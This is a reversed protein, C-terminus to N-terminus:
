TNSEPLRQLDWMMSCNEDAKEQTPICSFKCGHIQMASFVAGGLGGQFCSGRKASNSNSEQVFLIPEPWSRKSLIQAHCCPFCLFSQSTRWHKATKLVWGLFLSTIRQITRLPGWTTWQLALMTLSQFWSLLCSTRFTSTRICLQFEKTWAVLGVSLMSQMSAVLGCGHELGACFWLGWWGCLKTHTRGSCSHQNFSHCLIGHLPVIFCFIPRTAEYQHCPLSNTRPCRVSARRLSHM